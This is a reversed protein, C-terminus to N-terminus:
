DIKMRSRGLILRYDLNCEGALALGRRVRPLLFELIEAPRVDLQGSSDEVRADSVSSLYTLIEAKATLWFYNENRSGLQEQM